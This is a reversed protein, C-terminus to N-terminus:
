TWLYKVMETSRLRRQSQGSPITYTQTHTVADIIRIGVVRGSQSVNIKEKGIIFTSETISCATARVCLSCLCFFEISGDTAHRLQSASVSDFEIMYQIRARIDGITLLANSWKSFSCMFISRTTFPSSSFQLCVCVSRTLHIMFEVTVYKPQIADACLNTCHEITRHQEIERRMTNRGVNVACCQYDWKAASLRFIPIFVLLSENTFTVSSM